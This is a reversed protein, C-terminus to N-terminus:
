QCIGVGMHLRGDHGAGAHSDGGNYLRRVGDLAAGPSVSEGHGIGRIWVAGWPRRDGRSPEDRHGPRLEHRRHAVMCKSENLTRASDGGVPHWIRYRVSKVHATLRCPTGTGPAAGLDAVDLTHTTATIHQTHDPSGSRSTTFLLAGHDVFDPKCDDASFDIFGGINYVYGSSPLHLNRYLIAKAGAADGFIRSVYGGTKRADDAILQGTHVADFFGSLSLGDEVVGVPRNQTRTHILGTRDEFQREAMADAVRIDHSLDLEDWWLLQGAGISM